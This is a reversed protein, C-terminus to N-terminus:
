IKREKEERRTSDKKWSPYFIFKEERELEARGEMKNKWKTSINRLYFNRVFSSIENHIWHICISSKLTLFLLPFREFSKWPIFDSIWVVSELNCGLGFQTVTERFSYNELPSTHIWIICYWNKEQAVLHFIAAIQSFFWGVGLPCPLPHVLERVFRSFSGVKVLLKVFLNYIDNSIYSLKRRVYVQHYEFLTGIM